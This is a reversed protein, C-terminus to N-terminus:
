KSLPLALRAFVQNRKFNEAPLASDLKRHQYTVDVYVRRSLRYVLGAGGSRYDDVREIGQYDVRSLSGFVYLSFVPTFRHELNGQVYSNLYASAPLVPTGAAFVTTEEVTRDVFVSATTDPSASLVLNGGATPRSVDALRPDDYDQRMRGAFLELKLRGPVYSRVGLVARGGESDRVYGLDDTASEYIRHDASIQTFLVLRPALEFGLRAGAQWQVRDRDDNNIIGIAGSGMVFPVDDFDLDVANLAVRVSVRGFQQFLGAYARSALYRTPEIGNRVEPSERDEHERAVRLGGYLNADASVDYRSEISARYDETDETRQDLYRAFDASAHARVLHREWNSMVWVAPSVILAHDNVGDGQISYLNDDSLGTLVLEPYVLFDGWRYPDLPLPESRPVARRSPAPGPVTGPEAVGPEAGAPEQARAGHLLFLAAVVCGLIVGAPKM